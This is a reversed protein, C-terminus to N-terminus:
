VSRERKRESVDDTLLFDVMDTISRFWIDSGALLNGYGWKAHVFQFGARVSAQRDVEMDGVYLSNYPDCKANMAALLLQDPCPKGRGESVAEPTIVSSFPVDSFFKEIISHTRERGKSTVLSVAIGCSELTRLSEIVGDYVVIESINKESIDDYVTKVYLSLAEPVGIKELITMFPLGICDAYSEFPIQLGTAKQVAAWAKRMVPLSDILVGDFDFCVHAVNHHSAQSNAINVFFRDAAYQDDDPDYHLLSRALNFDKPEDIDIAEREDVEVLFPKGYVRTGYQLYSDRQFVYLGSTEAYVPSLDQTQKMRNPDYNLPKDEFWCYTQMRRVALACDYKGSTVARVGACISEESIFPGTAHCLVIIKEDLQSVAYGFLENARTEDTDLNRPRLLLRTEKPYLQMIQPQSTYCYVEDIEDISLLKAFIHYSLPKEGLKLFNKNPLRRSSLKIPVIAAVVM